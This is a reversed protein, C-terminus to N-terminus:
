QALEKDEITYGPNGITLPYNRAFEVNGGDEVSDAFFASNAGIGLQPLRQSDAPGGDGLGAALVAQVELV